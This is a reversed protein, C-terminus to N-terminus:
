SYDDYIFGLATTSTLQSAPITLYVSQWGTTTYPLAVVYYNSFTTNIVGATNWMLYAEGETGDYYYGTFYYDFNIRVSDYISLDYFPTAVATMTGLSGVGLADDNLAICYTSCTLNPINFNISSLAAPTGRQFPEIPSYCYYKTWGNM